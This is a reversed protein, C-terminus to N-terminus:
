DTSQSYLYINFYDNYITNSDIVAFNINREKDAIISTYLFYNEKYDLYELYYVNDNFSLTSNTYDGFYLYDDTSLCRFTRGTFNDKSISEIGLYNWSAIFYGIIAILFLLAIVYIFDGLKSRKYM